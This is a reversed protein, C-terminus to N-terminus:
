FSGVSVYQYALKLATQNAIVSTGYMNADLRGEDSRGQSHTLYDTVANYAGWVTDGAIGSGIGSTFNEVIQTMARPPDNEPADFVKCVYKELDKKNIGKQALSQYGAVTAVFESRVTDMAMRIDQLAPIM